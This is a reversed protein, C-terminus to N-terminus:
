KIKKKFKKYNKKLAEIGPLKKGILFELCAGGGTSVWTMKRVLGFKKIMESTEGGGIITVAKLRSIFRATKLSGAAFRKKEFQGLPGNWVITKAKKLHKKYLAITKPGIDFEQNLDVPLVLKRHRKNRLFPFLGSGILVYDAKKPLYKLALTKDKKIGGLIWVLPKKPKLAKNLQNIEKRLLFGQASPIFRTIADVSAHKRHSVAFANNIYFDAPEALSGAFASNNEKEGRYFRLNELLFIEKNRGKEIKGKVKKSICGNLKTIKEKRLFKKLERALLNTKLASVKKGKPRGLHTALIIKCNKQLLYRITPLSAKIKTNDKIRRGKLPVNYDVRVFVTKDKLPLDTISFLKM